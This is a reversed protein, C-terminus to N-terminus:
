EPSESMSSLEIVISNDNVKFRVYGDFRIETVERDAEFWFGTEEAWRSPSVVIYHVLVGLTAVFLVVEALRWGTVKM